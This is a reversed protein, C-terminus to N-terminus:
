VMKSRSRDHVKYNAEAPERDAGTSNKMTAAGKM